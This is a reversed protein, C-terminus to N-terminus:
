QHEKLYKVEDKLWMMHRNFLLDYNSESYYDKVNVANNRGQFIHPCDDPYGVGIWLDSLDMLGNIYNDNKFKLVNSVFVARIKRGEIVKDKGEEEMLSNLINCIDEKESTYTGALECVMDACNNEEIQSMAYKIIDDALLQGGYISNDCFGLYLLTWTVRLDLEKIDVIKIM